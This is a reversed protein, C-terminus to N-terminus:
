GVLELVRPDALNAVLLDADAQSEPDSPVYVTTLGAMRAAALGVPSDELAVAEDPTVSLAQCAALYVDPAPKDRLTEASVVLRDVADPRAIVEPHQDLSLDTDV